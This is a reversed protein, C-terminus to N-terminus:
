YARRYVDEVQEKTPRFPNDDMCSDEMATEALEGFAEPNVEMDRLRQPLGLSASFERLYVASAQSAQFGTMLDMGPLDLAAAVKKFAQSAMKDSGNFEMGCPLLIANCLGHPLGFRGGLAHAMAHIIGLGANSFAMGASYQAYAMMERAKVDSGNSVAAPLYEKITRIAWLADKDTYPTARKAVAAEVAHTMADMGTSATLGKPMTMMFDTDDVAITVMCNTDVMCMKSHTDSNTVIYFSTVESGTGATTNVAVIPIGPKGSKGVGEYDKVHGGNALVISVAKATDIASGGGVAVLVDVELADAAKLCEEVVQVTPNPQVLYYVAYELGAMLLCAGVRDAAGSKYLFSDTVILGRTLGRKKLEDPLLAISGKGFLSTKVAHIKEMDIDEKM